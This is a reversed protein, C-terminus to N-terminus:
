PLQHVSVQFYENLRKQFGFNQLNTGKRANSKQPFTMGKL